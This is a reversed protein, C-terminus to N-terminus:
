TVLMEHQPKEKGKDFKEESKKTPPDSFLYLSDIDSLLKLIKYLNREIHACDLIIDYKKGPCIVKQDM